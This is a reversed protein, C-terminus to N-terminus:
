SWLPQSQINQGMMISLSNVGVHEGHCVVSNEMSVMETTGPDTGALLQQVVSSVTKEM